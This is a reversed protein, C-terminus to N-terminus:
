RRKQKGKKPNVKTQQNVRALYRQKAIEKDRQLKFKAANEKLAANEEKLKLIEQSLKDKESQLDEIQKESKDIPETIAEYDTLIRDSESAITVRLSNINSHKFKRGNEILPNIARKLMNAASLLFPNEFLNIYEARGNKNESLGSEVALAYLFKPNCIIWSYRDFINLKRLCQITRQSATLLYTKSKMDGRIEERENENKIRSLLWVDNEAVRENKSYSRAQGKASAQTERLIEEKLETMLPTREIDEPNREWKKIHDGFHTHIIGEHVKRRRRDAFNDLYIYFDLESYMPDRKLKVYDNIFVNADSQMMIDDLDHIIAKQSEFRKQAGEVSDWIEEYTTQPVVIKCQTRRLFGIIERYQRSFRGKEVLVHLAFDTDIVFTLDKLQLGRFQRIRNDLNLLQMTVFARAWEELLQKENADPSELLNALAMVLANGHRISLGETAVNVANELQDKSPLKSVELLSLAFQAFYVSLAKRANNRMKHREYDTITVGSAERVREVLMDLMEDTKKDIDTESSSASLLADSAKYRGNNLRIVLADKEVALKKLLNDVRDAPMSIKFSNALSQCIQQPTMEDKSSALLAAIGKQLLSDRQKM